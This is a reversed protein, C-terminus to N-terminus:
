PVVWVKLPCKGDYKDKGTVRQMKEGVKFALLAKDLHDTRRQSDLFDKLVDSRYCLYQFVLFCKEMM